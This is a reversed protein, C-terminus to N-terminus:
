FKETESNLIASNRIIAKRRVPSLGNDEDITTKYVASYIHWKAM